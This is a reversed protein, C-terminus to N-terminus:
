LRYGREIRRSYGNVLCKIKENNLEMEHIVSMGNYLYKNGVLVVDVKMEYKERRLTRCLKQAYNFSRKSQIDYVIM